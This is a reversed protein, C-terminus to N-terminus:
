WHSLISEKDLHWYLKSIFQSVKPDPTRRMKLISNLMQEYLNATPGYVGHTALIMSHNKQPFYLSSLAEM